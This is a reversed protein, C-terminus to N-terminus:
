RLQLAMKLDDDGDGDYCPDVSSNGPEENVNDSEAKGAEFSASKEPPLKTSKEPQIHLESPKVNLHHEEKSNSEASNIALPEATDKRIAWINKKLYIKIMCITVCVYLRSKYTYDLQYLTKVSTFM